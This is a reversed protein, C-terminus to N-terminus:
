ALYDALEIRLKALARVIQTKITAITIGTRESIEEHSLMEFRSMMFVERCQPPL